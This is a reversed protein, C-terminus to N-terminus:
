VKQPRDMETLSPADCVVSHTALGCAVTSATTQESRGMGHVLCMRLLWVPLAVVRRLVCQRDRGCLPNGVPPTVMTVM